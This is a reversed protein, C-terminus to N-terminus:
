LLKFYLKERCWGGLEFPKYRNEVMNQLFVFLDVEFEERHFIM